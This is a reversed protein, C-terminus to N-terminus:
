GELFRTKRHSPRRGGREPSSQPPTKSAKQTRLSKEVGSPEAVEIRNFHCTPSQPITFKPNKKTAQYLLFFGGYGM